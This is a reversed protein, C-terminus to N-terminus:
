LIEITDGEKIIGSKLVKTFIGEKPMVCKGVTKSIACGSHCKKGIQSVEHITEGIKLRTGIPLKYLTIGQTTINEAFKGSCLEKINKIEEFKKISEVGLLSVQRIGPGAHADNEIGYDQICKVLPVPHKIIGKKESINVAVVKAKM